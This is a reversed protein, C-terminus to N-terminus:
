IFFEASCVCLFCGTCCDYVNYNFTNNNKSTKEYLMEGQQKEFKILGCQMQLFRNKEIANDGKELM